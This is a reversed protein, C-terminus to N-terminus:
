ELVCSIRRLLSKVSLLQHVDEISDWEMVNPERDLKDALWIMRPITQDNFAFLIKRIRKWKKLLLPIEDSASELNRAADIMDSATCSYAQCLQKRVNDATERDKILDFSM